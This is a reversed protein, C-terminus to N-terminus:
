DIALMAAKSIINPRRVPPGLGDRALAPPCHPISSSFSQDNKHHDGNNSNEEVGLAVARSAASDMNM